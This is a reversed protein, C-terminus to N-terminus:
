AVASFSRGYRSAEPVGGFVPRCLAFWRSSQPGFPFGHALRVCPTALKTLPKVLSRFLRCLAHLNCNDRGLAGPIRLTLRPHLLVERAPEVFNIDIDVITTRIVYRRGATHLKDRARFGIPVRECRTVKPATPTVHFGDLTAESCGEVACRFVHHKTLDEISVCCQIAGCLVANVPKEVNIVVLIEPARVGRHILMKMFYMGSNARHFVKAM